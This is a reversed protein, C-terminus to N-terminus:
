ESYYKLRKWALDKLRKMLEPSAEEIGEIHWEIIEAPEVVTLTVTRKGQRSVTGVEGVMEGAGLERVVYGNDAVVHVKGSVILGMKGTSTEGKHYIVESPFFQRSRAKAILVQLAAPDLDEFLANGKVVTRIADLDM